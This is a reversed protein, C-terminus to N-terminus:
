HFVDELLTTCVGEETARGTKRRSRHEFQLRGLIWIMNEHYVTLGFVFCVLCFKSGPYVTHGFVLCVLCFKSGPYVTLGFVFCVLCFKSGSSRM